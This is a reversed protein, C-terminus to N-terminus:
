PIVITVSATGVGGDDDEVTLTVTYTGTGPFSHNMMETIDVPFTGNANPHFCTANTGDGFDWYFTLDDAGPDHAIAQFTFEHILFEATLDVEWVHTEPHQVNFTHHIWLEQGNGFTLIIWCPNAGNPQGNVPDDEPTYRVIASYKKSHGVQLQALELRQDDPSGPYRVLTGGAIVEGDEYMEITVDHWKEGAIRLSANVDTPLVELTVTPAVNLVLIQFTKSDAGGDDDEVVVTVDYDGDDPYVHAFDDQVVFPFVGEGSNPPDPGVGDNYYIRSDFTRDGWDVSITLDDSGPDTAEVGLVFQEGENVTIPIYVDLSPPHNQVPVEATATGEGGDDDTVTFTITYMGNDGYLHSSVNWGTSDPQDHEETLVATESVGDGFDWVAAHTDLWGPDTFQGIADCPHMGEVFICYPLLIEPVPDENTTPLPPTDDVGVGGDDDTVTLVVTYTKDDGYTHTVKSGADLLITGDGFDWDYTFTDYIGPDYVTAEFLIKLGEPYPPNLITGDASQSTWEPIPAVNLVTINCLDTDQLGQSDTVTLTVVYVGDDYYTHTPTPGKAEKDNTYNGDGDVDETADFDWEYTLQGGLCYEETMNPNEVLLPGFSGGMAYMCGGVAGSSLYVRPLSMNSKFTWVDGSPDYMETLNTALGWTETGGFAYVLGGLVEAALGARPVTLNTRTSWSDTAPDFVEVAGISGRADGGVAYIEDDLVTAALYARGTPMDSKATWKDNSPDYEFVGGCPYCDILTSSGGIVYIKDSVTAIGFGEMPIPMPAKQSWSDSVPDYEFTTDTSDNGNNGGIAYIKGDASAAGIYSRSVPLDTLNSWADTKPNYKQFVPSPKITLNLPEGGIYYIEGDLTTTGGGWTSLPIDAKSTWEGEGGPSYSGTGNFQVTDGENVTQDPGADAVPPVSVPGIEIWVSDWIDSRVGGYESNDMGASLLYKGEDVPDGSPPMPIADPDCIMYKQDWFYLYSEGPPIEIIADAHICDRTDVVIRLATDVIYLDPPILHFTIEEEGVNAITINVWEGLSYRYKDTSVELPFTPGDTNNFFDIPPQVNVSILSLCVLIIGVRM